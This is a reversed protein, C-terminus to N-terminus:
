SRRRGAARGVPVVARWRAAPTARARSEGAGADAAARARPRERSRARAGGRVARMAVALEFGLVGFLPVAGLGLGVVTTLGLWTWLRGVLKAIVALVAAGAAGAAVSGLLSFPGVVLTAAVLGLGAVRGDDLGVVMAGRAPSASADRPDRRARSGREDQMDQYLSGHDVLVGLVLPAGVRPTRDLELDLVLPEVREEGVVGLVDRAAAREDLRAPRERDPGLEQELQEDGAAVLRQRDVALDLADDVRVSTVFLGPM